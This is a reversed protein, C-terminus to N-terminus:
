MPAPLAGDPIDSEGTITEYEQVAPVQSATPIRGYTYSPESLVRSQHYNAPDQGRLPVIHDGPMAATPFGAESASAGPQPAFMPRTPLPHFRPYEPADPLAKELERKARWNAFWGPVPIAPLLGTRYVEHEDSSAAVGDGACLDCRQGRLLGCQGGCAIRNLIPHPGTPCASTACGSACAELQSCEGCSQGSCTTGLPTGSGPEGIAAGLPGGVSEGM